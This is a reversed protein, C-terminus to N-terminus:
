LKEAQLMLILSQAERKKFHKGGGFLRDTWSAPTEDLEGSVENEAISGGLLLWQGPKLIAGGEIRVTAVEPIQLTTGNPSTRIFSVTEVKKIKSFTAAFDLHIAGSQDAIPRLQLMTGESVVRIQPQRTGQSEQGEVPVVGVVFPSQTTDSVCAMQGNFVTVKPAQLVNTLKDSQCRDLLKEGMDKDMIRFRVPPNKEILLQARAVCTGEHIGLPRNFAAPQVTDSNDAAENVNLPSWDPFVQQLKDDTITVFRTAIAIQDSVGFKRFANLADAVRKHGANTAVVVLEDSDKIWSVHEPRARNHRDGVSGAMSNVIVNRIDEALSEKVAQESLGERIKALVEKVSYTKTYYVAGPSPKNGLASVGTDIASNAPVSHTDLPLPVLGPLGRRQSAEAGEDASIGMAADSLVAVAALLMVGLCWWPNQRYDSQGTKM